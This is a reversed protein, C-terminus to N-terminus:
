EQNDNLEEQLSKIKADLEAETIDAKLIMQKSEKREPAYVGAIKNIEKIYELRTKYDPIDEYDIVPKGTKSDRGINIPKKNGADLGEELKKQIVSDKGLIKKHYLGTILAERFNEKKMNSNAINAANIRNKVNYYREHSDVIDMKEGKEMKAKMDEVVFRQKKTLGFPNDKTKKVM